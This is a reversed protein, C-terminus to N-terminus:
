FKACEHILEVTFDSLLNLGCFFAVIENFVGILGYNALMSPKISFDINKVFFFLFVM